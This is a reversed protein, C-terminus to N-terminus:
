NTIIVQQDLSQQYIITNKITNYKKTKPSDHINVMGKKFNTTNPLVTTM